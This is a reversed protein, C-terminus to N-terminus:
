PCRVTGRVRSIELFDKPNRSSGAGRSNMTPTLWDVGVDRRFTEVARSAIRIAESQHQDDAVAAGKAIQGPIARDDRGCGYRRDGTSLCKNPVDPPWRRRCVAGAIRCMVALYLQDFEANKRCIRRPHVMEVRVGRRSRCVRGAVNRDGVASCRFACVVGSKAGDRRYIPPSRRGEPAWNSQVQTLLGQVM